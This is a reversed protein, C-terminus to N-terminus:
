KHIVFTCDSLIKICVVDKNKDLALCGYRFNKHYEIIKNNTNNVNCMNNIIKSKTKKPTLDYYYFNPEAYVCGDECLLLNNFRFVGRTWNLPKMNLTFRGLWIDNAIYVFKDTVLWNSPKSPKIVQYDDFNIPMNKNITNKNNLLPMKKEGNIWRITIVDTLYFVETDATWDFRHAGSNSEWSNYEVFILQNTNKVHAIDFVCKNYCINSSIKKIYELIQDIPPEHCLESSIAVLGCNWFCRYEDTLEIWQRICYKKGPNTKCRLSTYFINLMQNKTTCPGWYESDKPSKNEYRVMCKDFPLIEPIEDISNYIITPFTIDKMKDYWVDLWYSQISQQRRIENETDPFVNWDQYEQKEIDMYISYFQTNNLHM